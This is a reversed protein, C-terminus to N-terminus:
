QSFTLAHAQAAIENLCEPREREREREREIYGWLCRRTIRCVCPNQSVKQKSFNSRIIHQIKDHKSVAFIPM